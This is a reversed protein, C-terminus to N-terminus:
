ETQIGQKRGLNDVDKHEGHAKEVVSQRGLGLDSGDIGEPVTGTHNGSQREDKRKAVMRTRLSHLVDGAGLDDYVVLSPQSTVRPEIDCATNLQDAELPNVLLWRTARLAPDQVGMTVKGVVQGIRM